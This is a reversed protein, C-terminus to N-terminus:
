LALFASILLALDSNVLMAKKNDSASRGALECYARVLPGRAEASMSFLAEGEKGLRALDDSSTLASVVSIDECIMYNWLYASSDRLISLEKSVSLLNSLVSKGNSVHVVLPKICGRHEFSWREVVQSIMRIAHALNAHGHPKISKSWCPRAGEKEIRMIMERYLQPCTKIGSEGAPIEWLSEANDSYAFMFVDVDDRVASRTIASNMLQTVVDNALSRAADGCSDYSRGRLSVSGDMTSTLDVLLVVVKRREEDAAKRRIEADIEDANLIYTRPVVGPVLVSAGSKAKESPSEAVYTAGDKAAEFDIAAIQSIESLLTSNDDLPDLSAVATDGENFVDLSIELTILNGLYGKEFARPLSSPTNSFSLHVYRDLGKRQSIIQSIRDSGNCVDPVNKQSILQASFIGFRKINDWNSAETVHYLRDVGNSRLMSILEDADFRIM